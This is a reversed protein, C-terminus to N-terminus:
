DGSIRCDPLAARLADIGEGTLGCGSLGLVSLRELRAFADVWDDTVHPTAYLHLEELAPMAAFSDIAAPTIRHCAPLHLERLRPLGAIRAYGDDGIPGDLGLVELGECRAVHAMGEDTFGRGSIYVERLRPARPLAELAGDGLQQCGCPMLSELTAIECVARLGADTFNPCGGLFLM